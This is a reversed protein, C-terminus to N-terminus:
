ALLETIDTAVTDLATEVAGRGLEWRLELSAVLPEPTDSPWSSRLKTADKETVVVYDVAGSAHLLRQVDGARYHHHDRWALLRVDAGMRRCQAAFSEPDGVGAAALVRRGAICEVGTRHGSLLGQFGMIGLHAIALRARPAAQRAREAVALATTRDARKRTVVIVDARGLASWGERWPGAPLTWRVARSSEASVVAINLDRAVDLRQYADDLIVVDAGRAVARDAAALRDADEEVIADPVLARHVQGEDGGYGRLVIAPKLGTGAYYGAIWAALPTKGSGGVTLNGVAVTPVPPAGRSLLGTRYARARAAQTLRYVLAPPLLVLRALRAPITRKVWLWRTVIRM